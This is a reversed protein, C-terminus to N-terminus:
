KNLLNWKDNFLEDNNIIYLIVEAWNDSDNLIKINNINFIEFFNGKDIRYLQDSAYFGADFNYEVVDIDDILLFLVASNYIISKQVFNYKKKFNNIESIPLKYEIKLVKNDLVVDYVFNADALPLSLLLSGTNSIDSM